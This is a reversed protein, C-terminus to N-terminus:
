APSATDPSPASPATVTRRSHADAFWPWGDIERARRDTAPWESATLIDVFARVTGPENLNLARDSDDIVVGAASGLGGVPIAFGPKARFCLTRRSPSGVRRISLVEECHLSHRHRVSWLYAVGGVVLVRHRRHLSM